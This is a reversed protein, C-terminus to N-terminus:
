SESLEHWRELQEELEAIRMELRGLRSREEEIVETYRMAQAFDVGSDSSAKRWAEVQQRSDARLHEFSGLLKQLTEIDGQSLKTVKEDLKGEIISRVRSCLLEIDLQEARSLLLLSKEHLLDQLMKEQEEVSEVALCGEFKELLKKSEDRTGEHPLPAKKEECAVELSNWRERLMRVDQHSLSRAHLKTRFEKLRKQVEHISMGDKIAKELDAIEQLAEDRHRRFITRQENQTKKREKVVNQISDWCTSLQLRARTFVDTTLTLIKAVGQLKKIEEKAAFLQFTKLDGVFTSQIFLDVDSIFLESVEHMAQKRRPYIADGLASLHQFLRNKNKVRMEAKVLEKRLSSIRSAYANLFSLEHQLSLYTPLHKQLSHCEALAEIPPVTALRSPLEALEKEMAFIAKEIQETIFASQEDFLEKLRKAERCLDTYRAWLRVRVNPDIPQKFFDLCLNRAGWFHGFHVGEGGELVRQMLGVTRELREDISSLASIEDFFGKPLNRGDSPHSAGGPGGTETVEADQHSEQGTSDEDMKGKWM